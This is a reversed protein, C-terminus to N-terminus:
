PYLIINQLGYNQRIHPILEKYINVCYIKYTGIGDGSVVPNNSDPHLLFCGKQQDINKNAWSTTAPQSAGVQLMQIPPTVSSSPILIQGGSYMGCTQRNKDKWPYFNRSSLLCSIDIKSINCNLDLLTKFGRIISTKVFKDYPILSLCRKDLIYISFYNEIETLEKNYNVTSSNTAFCLAIEFNISFDLLPSPSGYHQLLSLLYIDSCDGKINNYYFYPINLFACPKTRLYSLQDNIYDEYSLSKNGNIWSRQGSTYLKYKAESVGRFVFNDDNKVINYFSDFEDFNTIQYPINAIDTFDTKKDDFNKYELLPM